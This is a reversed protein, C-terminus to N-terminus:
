LDLARGASSLRSRLGRYREGAAVAVAFECLGGRQRPPAARGGSPPRPEDGDTRQFVWAVGMREVGHGHRECPGFAPERRVPEVGREVDAAIRNEPAGLDRLGALPSAGGGWAAPVSAPRRHYQTRSGRAPGSRHCASGSRASQTGRRHKPSHASDPHFIHYSKLVPRLFPTKAM